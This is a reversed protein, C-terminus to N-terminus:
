LYPRRQAGFMLGMRGVLEAAGTPRYAAQAASATMGAGITKGIGGGAAAGAAMMAPGGPIGAFTGVAVGLGEVVGSAIKTKAMTMEREAARTAHITQQVAGALGTALQTVQDLTAGESTTTPVFSRCFGLVTVAITMAMTPDGTLDYGAYVAATTALVSASAAPGLYLGALGALAVVAAGIQPAKEAFDDNLGMADGVVRLAGGQARGFVAALPNFQQWAFRHMNAVFATHDARGMLEELSRTSTRKVYAQVAPDASLGALTVGAAGQQLQYLKQIVGLYEPDMEGSVTTLKETVTRPADFLGITWSYAWQKYTQVDTAIEGSHRTFAHHLFYGSNGKAKMWEPMKIAGVLKNLNTTTGNDVQMRVKAMATSFATGGNGSVDAIFQAAGDAPNSSIARIFACASPAAGDSSSLMACCAFLAAFVMTALLALPFAIKSVAVITRWVVGRAYALRAGTDSVASGLRKWWPAGDAETLGDAAAAREVEARAEAKEPKEGGEPMEAREAREHGESEVPALGFAAPAAGGAASLIVDLEIPEKRSDPEASAASAAERAAASAREYCWTLQAWELVPPAGLERARQLAEIHPMLADVYADTVEGDVVWASHTMSFAYAAKGVGVAAGWAGKASRAAAVAKQIGDLSAALGFRPAFEQAAEIESWVEGLIRHPARSAGKRGKKM